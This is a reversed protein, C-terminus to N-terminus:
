SADKIKLGLKKKLREWEEPPAPWREDSLKPHLNDKKLLEFSNAKERIIAILNDDPYLKQVSDAINLIAWEFSDDTLDKLRDFWFDFIIESRSPFVEVM